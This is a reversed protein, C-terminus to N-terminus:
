SCKLEVLGYKGRAQCYLCLDVSINTHPLSLAKVDADELIVPVDGGSCILGRASLQEMVEKGPTRECAGASM